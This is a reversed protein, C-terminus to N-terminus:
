FGLVGVQRPDGGRRGRDRPRMWWMLAVWSVAALVLSAELAPHRMLTEVARIIPMLGEGAAILLGWGKVLALLLYGLANIAFLTTGILRRSADIWLAEIAIWPGPRSFIIAAVALCAAFSGAYGWAAVRMWRRRVRSPLVRALVRDVLEPSPAALPMRDLARFARELSAQERACIACSALHREFSRREEGALEGDLFDQVRRLQDCRTM